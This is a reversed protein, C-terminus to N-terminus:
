TRIHFNVGQESLVKIFDAKTCDVVQKCVILYKDIAIQHDQIAAEQLWFLAKNLDQEGHKGSIYLEALNVQGLKHGREASVTFKEFALQIHNSIYNAELFALGSNNQRAGPFYTSSIFRKKAVVVPKGRLENKVPREVRYIAGQSRMKQLEAIKYHYQKRSFFSFHTVHGVRISEDAGHQMRYFLRSYVVTAIDGTIDTVKGIRYKENPRLENSLYRFDVHYFDNVAPKEIFQDSLQNKEIEGQILYGLFMLTLLSGLFKSILRWAPFLNKSLEKGQQKPLTTVDTKVWCQQCQIITNKEVPFFPISEVFFFAYKIVGKVQHHNCGCDPCTLADIVCGQIIQESYEMKYEIKIGTIKIGGTCFDYL